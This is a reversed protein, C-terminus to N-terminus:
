HKSTFAEFIAILGAPADYMRLVKLIDSCFWRNERSFLGLRKMNPSNLVRRMIAEKYQREGLSAALRQVFAGKKLFDMKSSPKLLLMCPWPVYVSKNGVKLEQFFDMIKSIMGVPHSNYQKPLFPIMFKCQNHMSHFSVQSLVIPNLMLSVSFKAYQFCFRWFCEEAMKSVIMEFMYRGMDPYDGCKPNMHGRQCEVAKCQPCCNAWMSDDNSIFDYHCYRGRHEYLTAGVPIRGNIIGDQVIRWFFDVLHESDGNLVLSDPIRRISVYSCPKGRYGVAIKINLNQPPILILSQEDFSSFSRQLLKEFDEGAGLAILAAIYIAVNKDIFVARRFADMLTESYSGEFVEILSLIQLLRLLSTM